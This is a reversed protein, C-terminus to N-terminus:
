HKKFTVTGDEDIVKYIGKPAGEEILTYSGEDQLHKLYKENESMYSFLIRFVNVSSNFKTDFVPAENNPWKISLQTSFASYLLDRDMTKKRIDLMNDYGAYGGHDAMIMILGEPDNEQILNIVNKIRENAIKLKEKYMEFEREKGTTKQEDSEVHGPKFIEIFFFKSTVTDENLFKRVPKVIDEERKFGDTIFAIDKYDFNCADYGMEPFNNLLYSIEAIYHTKYNNNKFIDLVANKSIIVERANAIESFNFGNNYYHHMMSFTASNSVLTSTYNSRIDRYLKFGKEKLFSDYDDNDIKYYGTNMESINLYGDPQIYYVNPRKKFVVQEIDDPLLMWESSYSLQTNITPILWFLGVFALILQLAVLKRFFQYLFISFLIALGLILLTFLWQLTTYLCLQIFLFFTFINLFPLVHKHWKILKPIKFLWDFFVFVVIPVVLFLAIFFGLHKWSNILSYNNTYYFIVPYLGAGLATIIALFRPSKPKTTRVIDKSEM